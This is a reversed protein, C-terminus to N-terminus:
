RSLKLRYGRDLYVFPSPTDDNELQPYRARVRAEHAELDEDSVGRVQTLRWGRRTFEADVAAQDVKGEFEIGYTSVIMTRVPDLDPFEEMVRSFPVELYDDTLARRVKIMREATDESEMASLEDGDSSVIDAEELPYLELWETVTMTTDLIPEVQESVIYKQFVRQGYFEYCPIVYITEPDIDPFAALLDTYPITHTTINHNYPSSLSVASRQAMEDALSRLNRRFEPSLQDRTQLVLCVSYRTDQQPLDFRLM